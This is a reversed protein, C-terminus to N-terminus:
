PSDFYSRSEGERRQIGRATFLAFLAVIVLTGPTMLSNGVVNVLTTLAMWAVIPIGAAAGPSRPSASRSARSPAASRSRSRARM